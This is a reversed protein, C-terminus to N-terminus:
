HNDPQIVFMDAYPTPLIEVSSWNTFVVGFMLPLSCNTPVEVKVKPEM